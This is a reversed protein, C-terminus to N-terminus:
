LFATHKLAASQGVVVAEAHVGRTTEVTAIATRPAPACRNPEVAPTHSITTNSCQALGVVVATTLVVVRRGRCCCHRRVRRRAVVWGRRRMHNAATIASPALLSFFTTLVYM